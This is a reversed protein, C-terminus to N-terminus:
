GARRLRTVQDLWEYIGYAKRGLDCRPMTPDCRPCWSCHQQWLKGAQAIPDSVPTM